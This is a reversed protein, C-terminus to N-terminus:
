LNTIINEGNNLSCAVWKIAKVKEPTNASKRASMGVGEANRWMKIEEDTAPRISISDKSISYSTSGCNVSKSGMRLPYHLNIRDTDTSKMTVVGITTRIGKGKIASITTKM